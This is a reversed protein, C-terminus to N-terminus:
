AQTAHLTGTMIWDYARQARKLAEELSTAKGDHLASYLLQKRMKIQELETPVYVANNM